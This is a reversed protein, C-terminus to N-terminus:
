VKFEETVRQTIRKSVRSACSFLRAALGANNTVPDRDMVHEIFEKTKARYQYGKTKRDAEIKDYEERVTAPLIGSKLLSKFKASKEKDRKM